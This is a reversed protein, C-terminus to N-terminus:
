LGSENESEHTFMDHNIRAVNGSTYMIHCHRLKKM